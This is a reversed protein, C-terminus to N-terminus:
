RDVFAEIAKLLFELVEAETLTDPAGIVQESEIVRRGRNRSTHGIVSPTSGTTDLFLEVFDEASRDSSLRVSASPTFVTFLHQEPRLVGAVQRFLPIAVNNLVRDFARTAEDNRARREAAQRKAREITTLLRKRVDSVEM